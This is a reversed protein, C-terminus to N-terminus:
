KKELHSSNVTSLNIFKEILVQIEESVKRDFVKAYHQTTGLNKNGQMKSVSEISVSNTLTVM